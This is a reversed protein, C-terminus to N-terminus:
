DRGTRAAPASSSKRRRGPDNVAALATKLQFLDGERRLGIVPEYTNIQLDFTDVVTRLYTLYQERTAKGQDPTLLPVGAIAIRENSSFFRTQPAWWTMTHGIQQADFQIYNIGARKLAVALELGIPGAGIVAADYVHDVM